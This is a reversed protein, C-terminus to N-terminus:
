KGVYAKSPLQRLADELYQPQEDPKGLLEDIRLGRRRSDSPPVTSGCSTPGSHDLDSGCAEPAPSVYDPNDPGPVDTVPRDPVPGPLDPEEPVPVPSVNPLGDPSDERNIFRLHCLHSPVRRLGDGESESDSGPVEPTVPSNRPRDTVKPTLAPAWTGRTFGLIRSHLHEPCGLNRLASAAGLCSDDDHDQRNDNPLAGRVSCNGSM